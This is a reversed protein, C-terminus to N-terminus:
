RRAEEVLDQEEPPMPPRVVGEERRQRALQVARLRELGHVVRPRRPLAEGDVLEVARLVLGLGLVPDLEVGVLLERVAVHGGQPSAPGSVPAVRGCQPTEPMQVM